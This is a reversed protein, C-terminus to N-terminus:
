DRVALASNGRLREVLVDVLARVKASVQRGELHINHVPLAPPLFNAVHFLHVGLDGRLSPIIITTGNM